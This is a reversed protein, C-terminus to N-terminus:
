RPCARKFKKSVHRESKVAAEGAKVAREAAQLEFEGAGEQMRQRWDREAEDTIRIINLGPRMEAPGRKQARLRNYTPRSIQNRACFQPVTYTVRDLLLEAPVQKKSRAVV